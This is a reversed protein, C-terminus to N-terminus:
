GAPPCWADMCADWAHRVQYLVEGQMSCLTLLAPAQELIGLEVLADTADSASPVARGSGPAREGNGGRWSAHPAGAGALATETSARITRRQAEHMIGHDDGETQWPPTRSIRQHNANNAHVLCDDPREYHRGEKRRESECLAEEM